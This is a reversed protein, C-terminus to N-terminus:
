IERFKAFHVIDWINGDVIEQNRRTAELTMGSDQMIKIMPTNCAVAGGTIKRLGARSLLYSMLCAWAELGFGKGWYPRGILIGLDATLHHRSIYAAMTGIMQGDGNLKISLFQNPSEQFGQLYALSSEQSHVCFRQNSFRTVEPDNLWGIYDASIDSVAFPSLTLRESFINKYM